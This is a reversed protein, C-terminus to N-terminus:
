FDWAALMCSSLRVGPTVTFRHLMPDKRMDDLWDSTRRKRSKKKEKFPSSELESLRPSVDVDSDDKESSKEMGEDKCVKPPHSSAEVASHSLASRDVVFNKKLVEFVKGSYNRPLRKDVREAASLNFYSIQKSVIVSEYGHITKFPKWLRNWRYVCQQWTKHVRLNELFAAVFEWRQQKSKFLASSPSARMEEALKRKGDILLFTEHESWNCGRRDSSSHKLEREPSPRHPLDVVDQALPKHMSLPTDAQEDDAATAPAPVASSLQTASTTSGESPFLDRKTDSASKLSVGEGASAAIPAGHLPPIVSGPGAAIVHSPPSSSTTLSLSSSLADYALQIWADYLRHRQELRSIAEAQHRQQYAEEEVVEKRMEQLAEFISAPVGTPRPQRGLEDRRVALNSNVRGITSLAWELQSFSPRPPLAKQLRRMEMLEPGM